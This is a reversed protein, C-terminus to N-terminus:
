LFTYMRVQDQLHQDVCGGHSLNFLLDEAASQGVEEAQVGTLVLVNSFAMSMYLTSSRTLMFICLM